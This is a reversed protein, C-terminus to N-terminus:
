GEHYFLDPDDLLPQRSLTTATDRVSRQVPLSGLEVSIGFGTFSRVGRARLEDLFSSLREVPVLYTPQTPENGM